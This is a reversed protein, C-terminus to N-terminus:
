GSRIMQGNLLHHRPVTLLLELNPCLSEINVYFISAQAYVRGWNCLINFLVNSRM